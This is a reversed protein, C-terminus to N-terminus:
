IKKMLYLTRHSKTLVQSEIISFYKSFAQEFHNKTYRDFIDIRIELLRQAQPDQKPVFEIILNRALDKFYSAILPLPVNHGISLHHVLALALVMDAPGRQALSNREKHAWGIAASPNTLDLWLPTIKSQGEELCAAYNKEVCGWDVDFAITTAGTEAAIRSYIGTNAGLDWVTDPHCQNLYKKVLDKKQQEEESSYSHTDYYDAWQTDRHPLALKKVTGELSDILGQLGRLSMNRKAPTRNENLPQGAKQRREHKVQQSAHLHIHILLGMSLRSTWPLLLATLDLPVGDLHTQLLTALRMDCKAMLALPALFHRCFQRYAVWPAGEERTEFSLTDIFVPDVGDFQVNYASADKLSMGKQLAMKQIELTTLAAAKLQGFSWEYPYSIFRLPTPRLVAIADDTMKLELSVEEHEILLRKEVLDRYLGSDMLRRYDEAYPRNVQRYIVDHDRFIFGSPDRFSAADIAPTM